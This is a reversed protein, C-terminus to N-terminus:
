FTWMNDNKRRFISFFCVDSKFGLMKHFLKGLFKWGKDELLLTVFTLTLNLPDVSRATGTKAKGSLVGFEFAPGRIM